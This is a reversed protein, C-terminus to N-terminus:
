SDAEGLDIGVSALMNEFKGEIEELRGFWDGEQGARIGDLWGKNAAWMEEKIGRLVTELVTLKYRVGKMVTKRFDDQKKRDYTGREVVGEKELEVGLGKFYLWEFDKWYWSELCLAVVGRNYGDCDQVEDMEHVVKSFGPYARVLGSLPTSVIEVRRRIDDSTPKALGLGLVGSYGQWKGDCVLELVRERHAYCGRLLEKEDCYCDMDWWEQLGSGFDFRDRVSDWSLDWDGWECSVVADYINGHFGFTDMPARTLASIPAPAGARNGIGALRGVAGCLPTVVGYFLGMNGAVVGLACFGRFDWVGSWSSAVDLRARSWGESDGSDVGRLIGMRGECLERLQRMAQEWCQRIVFENITSVIAVVAASHGANECEGDGSEAWALGSDLEGMVFQRFKEVFYTPVGVLCLRSQLFNHTHQYIKTKTLTAPAKIVTNVDEEVDMSGPDRETIAKQRKRKPPNIYASVISLPKNHECWSLYQRYNASLNSNQKQNSPPITFNPKYTLTSTSTTM